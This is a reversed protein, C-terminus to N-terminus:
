RGTEAPTTPAAPAPLALWSHGAAVICSRRALNTILVTWGGDESSFVELISHEAIVGLATQREGHVEALWEVISTRDDCVPIQARAPPGVACLALLMAATVPLIKRLM